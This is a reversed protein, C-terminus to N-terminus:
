SLVTAGDDASLVFVTDSGGPDIARERKSLRVPISTQASHYEDGDHHHTQFIFGGSDKSFTAHYRNKIGYAKEEIMAFKQRGLSFRSMAFVDISSVLM